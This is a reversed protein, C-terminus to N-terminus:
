YSPLDQGVNYEPNLKTILEMGTLELPTESNPKDAVVAIGGGSYGSIIEEKM